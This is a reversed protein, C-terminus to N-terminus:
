ITLDQPAEAPAASTKKSDLAAELEGTLETVKEMIEVREGEQQQNKQLMEDALNLAALVAIKGTDVVPLHEGIERMKRDVIEALKLLYERDQEGRVHYVAGFIEVDM